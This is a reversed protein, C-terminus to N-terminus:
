VTRYPKYTKFGGGLEILKAEIKHHDEQSIKKNIREKSQLLVHLGGRKYLRRWVSLNPVSVKLVKAQEKLSLVSNETEKALILMKIRNAKKGSYIDLLKMLEDITESVYFMSESSKSVIEKSCPKQALLTEVGGEKYKKRWSKITKASVGLIKSQESILLHKEENEKELILMKIRKKQFNNGSSLIQKLEEVEEVVSFYKRKLFKKPIKPGSVRVKKIKYKSQFNERCYNQFTQYCIDQSVNECYWEHLEKYSRFGHYPDNLKTEIIQHERIGIKKNEEWKEKIRDKLLSELGGDRYYSRWRYITAHSVGLIKSQESLSLPKTENKKLLILMEIRKDVRETNLNELEKVSEKVFLLDRRPPNININKYLLILNLGGKEYMIRWKQITGRRIKLIKQLENKSIGEPEHQKIAILMRLRSYVPEKHHSLLAELEELSEKVFIKKVESM